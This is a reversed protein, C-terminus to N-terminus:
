IGARAARERSRRGLSRDVDRRGLSLERFRSSLSPRPSLNSSGITDDHSDFLRSRQRNSRVATDEVLPRPIHAASPRVVNEEARRRQAAINADAARMSELRAFVGDFYDDLEQLEADLEAEVRELESQHRRYLSRRAAARRVHVGDDDALSHEQAPAGYELFPTRCQPCEPATSGGDIKNFTWKLICALGFVHGCALKVPVEAGNRELSTEQCICCTHDNLSAPTPFTCASHLKNSIDAYRSQSSPM